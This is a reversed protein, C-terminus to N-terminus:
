KMANKLNINEQQLKKVDKNIEILYLTLEEIKELLKADTKAVDIGNELVESTSPVNPLHKNEKVFSEVEELSMMKYDDEFVYDSWDSGGAIAVKIKETMMGGKVLLRYGGSAAANRDAVAVEGVALFKAVFDGYVLPTNTGTNAIYLKDGNTENSGANHGLFIGNSGTSAAGALQGVAVNNDGTSNYLVGDGIGVNANGSVNNYLSNNGLGMNNSGGQNLILANSGIGTNGSGTNTFVLANLGIGVNNGGTAERLAQFGIGVNYTGTSTLGSSLGLFTRGDSGILGASSSNVKFMLSQNDLTGIFNTGPTTGLNGTTTWDGDVGSVAKAESDSLPAWKDGNFFYFGSEMDTQYIMLGTAPSLIANRKDFTMRPTLFGKESSQIDLIASNDPNTTGIGVNANQSFLPTISLAVLVLSLLQQKM